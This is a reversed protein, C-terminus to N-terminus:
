AFDSHIDQDPFTKLSKNPWIGQVNRNLIMCHLYIGMRKIINVFLILLRELKEQFLGGSRQVKSMPNKVTFSKLSRASYRM